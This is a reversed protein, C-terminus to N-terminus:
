TFIILNKIKNFIEQPDNLDIINSTQYILNTRNVYYSTIISNNIYERIIVFNDIYFAQQAYTNSQVIIYHTKINNRRCSYCSESTSNSYCIMTHSKCIPCFDIPVDINKFLMM